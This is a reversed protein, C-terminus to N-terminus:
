HLIIYLIFLKRYIQNSHPIMKVPSVLTYLDDDNRTTKPSLTELVSIDENMEGSFFYESQIASLGSLCYCSHYYDPSREPKDLLGGTESNQCCILIYQRLAERNGVIEEEGCDLASKRLLAELIPGSAGQWFSYCGDVLKNTRGQYGGELPMQRSVIWNSLLHLDLLDTKGLLAMAALGCFTYGGHAEVGPVSGIGGEYTQCQAIFEAVGEALEPTLINLRTAISMACFSGRVDVEGGQHMQFSGDPQKLSLLWRLLAPRNICNYAAETGVISLANIAAYSTALHPVQQPGGAFGGDQDQFRSVTDVLRDKETPSLQDRMLDLSHTIWYILWPRSADLSVFGKPRPKWTPGYKQKLYLYLVSEEVERQAESTATSIGDDQYGLEDLLEDIVQNDM